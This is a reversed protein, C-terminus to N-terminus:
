QAAPSGAAPAAPAAAPPACALALMAAAILGLTIRGHMRWGGHAREGPRWIITVGHIAGLPTAAVISAVQARKLCIHRRGGWLDLPARGRPGAAYKSTRAPGRM